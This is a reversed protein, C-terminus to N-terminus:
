QGSDHPDGDTKEGRHCFGDDETSDFPVDFSDFRKIHYMPCFDIDRRNVCDRCRVVSVADITPAEDIKNLVRVAMDGKHMEQMRMTNALDSVMEPKLADADIPRM